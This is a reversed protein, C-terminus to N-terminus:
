YLLTLTIAIFISHSSSTVALQDPYSLLRTHVVLPASGPGLNDPAGWALAFLRPCHRCAPTRTQDLWNCQKIQFFASSFNWSGTTCGTRRNQLREVSFINVPFADLPQQIKFSQFSSWPASHKIRKKCNNTDDMNRIM